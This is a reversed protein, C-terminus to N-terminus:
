GEQKSLATVLSALGVSNSGKVLIADDRELGFARVAEVAERVNACHAFPVPKGLESAGSKGLEVALAVMEDGVLVAYDVGAERVPAALAAHYGPGHTGLEKMAGLVAIRRRAPTRSLQALTARMSAPNANYSEDILLARRRGSDDPEGGPVDIEVQAGRGALGGMEALAVGAAGLDGKVARVAAM